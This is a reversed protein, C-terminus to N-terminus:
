RAGSKMMWVIQVILLLLSNSVLQLPGKNLSFSTCKALSKGSGECHPKSAPDITLESAHRKSPCYSTSLDHAPHWDEQTKLKKSIQLVYSCLKMDAMKSKGSSHDSM